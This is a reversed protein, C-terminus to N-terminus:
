ESKNQAGHGEFLDFAFTHTRWVVAAGAESWAVEDASGGRADAALSADRESDGGPPAGGGGSGALATASGAAATRPTKAKATPQAFRSGAARSAEAAAAAVSGDIKADEAGGAAAAASVAASLARGNKSGSIPQSTQSTAAAVSKQSEELQRALASEDASHRRAPSVQPAARPAAARRVLNLRQPAMTFVQQAAFGLLLVLLLLLLAHSTRAHTSGAASFDGNCRACRWTATERVRHVVNDAASFHGPARDFFAEIDGDSHVKVVVGV